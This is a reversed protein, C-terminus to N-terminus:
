VRVAQITFHYNISDGAAWTFPGTPSLGSVQQSDGGNAPRFTTGTLITVVGVRSNAGTDSDTMRVHGVPTATNTGAVNFGPPLSITPANPFTQGSTGFTVVGDITLLGQGGVGVGGVFVFNATNVGGAGVAMNVLTPTYVGAAAAVPVAVARQDTLASAAILAIPLEWTGTPSQAPSSVGDRYLLEATNAAPDFRVVALGNATVTLVQASTLECFHGDVWAAGAQVTLNPFTLSPALDGPAAVGSPSWLRGMKRWRAESSVSGDAADTPWVNMAVM